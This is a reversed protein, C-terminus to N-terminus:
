EGEKTLIDVAKQAQDIVEDIGYLEAYESDPQLQQVCHVLNHLALVVIQKEDITM